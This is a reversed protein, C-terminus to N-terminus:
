HGGSEKLLDPRKAQFRKFRPVSVGRIYPQNPNKHEYDQHYEEGRWFKEFETIEAAIPDQYQGSTELAAKAQEAVTKEEASSYFIISRYQPGRDPGQGNVQTPNQSAFFVDVLQAFSVVSADYYVQVAESHSTAGRAVDNYTPNQETGGAYGSVAEYVGKVSEYISEVCWFCGSAFTAVSANKPIDKEAPVSNGASAPVCSVALGVLLIATLFQRPVSRSSTSSTM